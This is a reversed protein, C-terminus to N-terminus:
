DNEQSHVDNDIATEELHEEVQELRSKNKRVYLLLAAAFLMALLASAALILFIQSYAANGHNDILVGFWTSSFTDPAFGIVSLLGTATGFVSIPVKGESLQSSAIGYAGNAVFGLLITVIAGVVAFSAEHPLLMLCLM